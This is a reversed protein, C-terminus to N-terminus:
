GHAPFELTTSLGKEAETHVSLHGNLRAARSRMTAMGQGREISAADSGSGLDSVQIRVLNKVQDYDGTLRAQHVGSHRLTNWLMEQVIRLV